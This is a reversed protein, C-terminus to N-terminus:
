ELGRFRSINQPRIGWLAVPGGANNVLGRVAVFHTPCVAQGNVVTIAQKIESLDAVPMADMCVACQLIM